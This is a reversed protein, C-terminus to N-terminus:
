GDLVADELFFSLEESSLLLEKGESEDEMEVNEEEREEAV